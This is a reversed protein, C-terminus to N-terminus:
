YYQCFVPLIPLIDLFHCFLCNGTTLKKWKDVSNRLIKSFIKLPILLSASDAIVANSENALQKRKICFQFVDRDNM